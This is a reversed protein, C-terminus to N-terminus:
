PYIVKLELEPKYIVNEREKMKTLGALMQVVKYFLDGALDDIAVVFNKAKAGADENGTDGSIGTLLMFKEAMFIKEYYGECSFIRQINM